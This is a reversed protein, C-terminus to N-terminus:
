ARCNFFPSIVQVLELVFKVLRPDANKRAFGSLDEIIYFSDTVLKPNAGILEEQSVRIIYV